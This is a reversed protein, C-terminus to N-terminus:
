SFRHDSPSGKTGGVGSFISSNRANVSRGGSWASPSTGGSLRAAVTRLTAAFPTMAPQRGSYMGIRTARASAIASGAYPTSCEPFVGPDSVRTM